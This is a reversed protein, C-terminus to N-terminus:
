QSQAAFIETGAVGLPVLRSSPRGAYTLTSVSIDYGALDLYDTHAAVTSEIVLIDLQQLYTRILM